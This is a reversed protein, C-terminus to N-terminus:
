LVRENETQPNLAYLIVQLLPTSVQSSLSDSHVPNRSQQTHLFVRGDSSTTLFSGSGGASFSSQPHTLIGAM